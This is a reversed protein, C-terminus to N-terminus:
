PSPYRTVEGVVCRYPTNAVSGDPIDGESKSQGPKLDEIITFVQGLQLKGDTSEYDIEIDYNSPSSAHNTVTFDVELPTCKDISVDTSGHQTGPTTPVSGPPTGTGQVGIPPEAADRGGRGGLACASVALAVILALLVVARRGRSSRVVLSRTPPHIEAGDSPQHANIRM